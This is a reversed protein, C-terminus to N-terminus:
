RPAEEDGLQPRDHAAHAESRPAVDDVLRASGGSSQEGWLEAYTGACALLEAHTGREVVRGRDLVVIEDADAAGSLRHTVLLVGREEGKPLRDLIARETSTDVASLADDLLLFPADELLARAISLRQRQGGSLDVGREGIVTEYGKPYAAVTSHISAIECVRELDAHTAGPAAVRLNEALSSSFLFPRQSVLALQSRIWAPDLGALERGDVQVSGGAYPRNRLLVEILSSKGSGPPGVLAVRRGPELVLDLGDLVLGKSDTRASGDTAADAAEDGTRQYAFRLGRVEIRRAREVPVLGEVEEDADLLEFVRDLAVTARGLETLVRGIQRVPFVTLSTTTVFTFFLGVTMEGARVAFAGYGLVALVQGLCILDSTSWYAGLKDVWRVTRDRFDSNAGEFKEVEAGSAAFARVVQAGSLNEQIVGTLRGEAEDVAQFLTRVGRFFVIALGIILPYSAMSLLAYRVDLSALLAFAVALMTAARAVEPAQTAVFARTTEVDSTCRQVVDGHEHGDLTDHPLRLLHAHLDDRLRAAVSEASEAVLRGRLYQLVGGVLTLALALAAAVWIATRPEFAALRAGLPALWPPTASRVANTDAGDLGASAGVAVDMGMGVVLPAAYTALTAFALALAAAVYPRAVPRLLRALRRGNRALARGHGNGLEADTPM